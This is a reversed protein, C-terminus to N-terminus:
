MDTASPIASINPVRIRVEGYGRTPTGIGSPAFNDQIIPVMQFVGTTAADVEGPQEDLFQFPINIELEYFFGPEIQAGRNFYRYFLSRSRQRLDSLYARAPAKASANVTLMMGSDAVPMLTSFSPQGPCQTFHINRRAGFTLAVEHVDCYASATGAAAASTGIYHGNDKAAIPSLPINSNPPTGTFASVSDDLQYGVVNGDFKNETKGFTLTSSIIAGYAFRSPFDTTGAEVTMTKYPDDVATAWRYVIDRTITAGIPTSFWPSGTILSALLYVLDDFGMPGTINTESHGKQPIITVNAREGPTIVQQGPEFPQPRRMGILQSKRNPIVPKGATNEYGFRWQEFISPREIMTERALINFAFSENKGSNDIYASVGNVIPASAPVFLTYRGAINGERSVKFGHMGSSGLSGSDILTSCRWLEWEDLNPPTSGAKDFALTEERHIGPNSDGAGICRTIDVGNYLLTVDRIDVVMYPGGDFIFAGFVRLKLYRYNKTSFTGTKISLTGDPEFASLVTTEASFNLGDDSGSLNVFYGNYGTCSMVMEIANVRTPYKFDLLLEVAVEHIFTGYVSNSWTLFTSFDNRLNDTLVDTTLSFPLTLTGVGAQYSQQYVTLLSNSM